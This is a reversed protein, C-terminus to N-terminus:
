TLAPGQKDVSSPRPMLLAGGRANLYAETSTVFPGILAGEPPCGPARSWWWWGDTRWFIEISGTKNPLSHYGQYRGALKNIALGRGCGWSGGVAGFRSDVKILNWPSLVIQGTHTQFVENEGGKKPDSGQPRNVGRRWPSHRTSFHRQIRSGQTTPGGIASMSTATSSSSITTVLRPV